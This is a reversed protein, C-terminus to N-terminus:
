IELGCIYDLSVGFYQAIMIVADINPIRKGLEWHGIAAASIKNGLEEALQQQSLGKEIRLTKLREGFSM